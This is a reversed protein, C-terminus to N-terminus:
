IRGQGLSIRIDGGYVTRAQHLVDVELYRHVGSPTRGLNTFQLYGPELSHKDDQKHSQGFECSRLVSITKRIVSAKSMCDVLCPFHISVKEVRRPNPGVNQVFLLGSYIPEV